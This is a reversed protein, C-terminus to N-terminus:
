RPEYEISFPHGWDEYWGFDRGPVPNFLTIDQLEGARGLLATGLELPERGYSFAVRDGSKVVALAQEATARRSEYWDRWGDTTVREETTSM